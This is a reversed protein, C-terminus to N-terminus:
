EPSQEELLDFIFNIGLLPTLVGTSSLNLEGYAQFINWTKSVGAVFSVGRYTIGVPYWDVLLKAGARYDFGDDEPTWICGLTWRGSWSALNTKAVEVNYGDFEWGVVFSATAGTAPALQMGLLPGAFAASGIFLLAVLTVLAKKM